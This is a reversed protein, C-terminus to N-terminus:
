RRGGEASVGAASGYSPGKSTLATGVSSLYDEALRDLDGPGVKATLLEEAAKVASAVAEQLLEARASKLEQEIRFEADRQMRARREDAETLIHKKEQEAQAAYEIRLQEFTEEMREFKEEYDRLRDEAEEKLRTANDIERMIEHKRKVLAAALPKRGFRYLIFALFVFNLVNALFPPPQNKEDCPNEKNEYRFLLQNVISPSQALENNVMLVGRWLNLAPPPDNPGHGPCHEEGHGGHGGHEPEPQPKAVPRGSPRVGPRGPLAPRGATAGPAAPGGPRQFAPPLQSPDIKQIRVPPQQGAPAPPPPAPQGPPPAPQQAFTVGATLAVGLGLAAILARLRPKM